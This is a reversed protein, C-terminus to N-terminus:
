FDEVVKEDSDIYRGNHTHWPNAKRKADNSALTPKSVPVKARILKKM